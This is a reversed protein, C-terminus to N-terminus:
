RARCRQRFGCLTLAAGACALAAAATPVPDDTQPLTKAKTAKGREEPKPEPSPGPEPKQQETVTFEVDVPDGDDFLATLVHRGPALAQLYSPKLEVVVSGPSAEYSGEAVDGGDVRVGAFHGFTTEDAENRRFTFVLGGASASGASAPVPDGAPVREWASGGGSVLEYEATGGEARWVTLTGNVVTVDYNPNEDWYATLTYRTARGETVPSGITAYRVEGLDGPSALGEVTCEYTPEPEGERREADHMTVTAKRRAIELRGDRTSVTFHGTVDNGAKDRVVPTGTIANPLSCADESRPDSTKLGEVRFTLRAAEKEAGEPKPGPQPHWRDEVEFALTEFGEAARETGDYTNGLNSTAVVELEVRPVYYVTRKIDGWSAKGSVVPPIATYGDIVPSEVLYEEGFVVNEVHDVCALYGDPAYAYSVTLVDVQADPAFRAVLSCDGTPTFTYSEDWSVVKGGMSWSVFANNDKPVATVTIPLGVYCTGGGMTDCEIIDSSTAVTCTPVIVFHVELDDPCGKCWSDHINAGEWKRASGVYYVDKLNRCNGFARAGIEHVSDPITVSSLKCSAFASVAIATVSYSKGDLTVTPSIAVAKANANLCKSVVATGNLKLTYRFGDITVEQTGAAATLALGESVSSDAEGEGDTDGDDEGADAAGATAGEDGPGSEAVLVVEEAVAEDAEAGQAEPTGGDGDPADVVEVVVPEQGGPSGAEEALARATVLGAVLALCALSSLVREM